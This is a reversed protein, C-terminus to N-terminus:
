LKARAKETVDKNKEKLMTELKYERIHQKFLNEAEKKTTEYYGFHFFCNLIDAIFNKQMFNLDTSISVSLDAYNHEIMKNIFGDPVKIEFFGMYDHNINELIGIKSQIYDKLEIFKKIKDKQEKIEEPDVSIQNYGNDQADLLVQCVVCVVRVTSDEINSSIAKLSLYEQVIESM